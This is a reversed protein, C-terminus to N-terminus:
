IKCARALASLEEAMPDIYAFDADHVGVELNEARDWRRQRDGIWIRNPCEERREVQRMEVREREDRALADIRGDGLVVREYDDRGDQEGGRAHQIRNHKRQSREDPGRMTWLAEDLM